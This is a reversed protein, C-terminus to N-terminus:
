STYFFFFFFSFSFGTEFTRERQSLVKAVHLEVVVRMCRPANIKRRSITPARVFTPILSYRTAAIPRGPRRLRVEAVDLSGARDLDVSICTRTSDPISGTSRRPDSVPIYRYMANVGAM